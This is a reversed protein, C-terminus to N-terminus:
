DMLDDCSLWKCQTMLTLSYSWLSRLLEDTLKLRHIKTKQIPRMALKHIEPKDKAEWSIQYAQLSSAVQGMKKTCQDMLTGSGLEYAWVSSILPGYGTAKSKKFIENVMTSSELSM